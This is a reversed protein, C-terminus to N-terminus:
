PTSSAGKLEVEYSMWAERLGYGTWADGWMLHVDLITILVSYEKSSLTYTAGPLLKRDRRADGTSYKGLLSFNCHDLSTDGEKLEVYIGGRRRLLSVALTIEANTGPWRRLLVTVDTKALDHGAPPTRVRLVEGGGSEIQSVRWPSFSCIWANEPHENSADTGLAPKGDTGVLVLPYPAAESESVPACGLCAVLCAALCLARRPLGLAVERGTSCFRISRAHGTVIDITGM